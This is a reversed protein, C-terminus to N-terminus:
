SAGYLSLFHKRNGAPGLRPTTFPRRQIRPVRYPCPVPGVGHAPVCYWSAIRLGGLSRYHVQYVNVDPTSRLPVPSLDPELPLASLESKVEDWFPGLDAPAAVTSAFSELDAQTAM